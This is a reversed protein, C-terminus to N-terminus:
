ASFTEMQHRWLTTNWTNPIWRDGNGRMVGAIRFANGYWSAIINEYPWRGCSKPEYKSHPSTSYFVGIWANCRRWLWRWPTEFCRRISQKSLRKYLLLDFFVDFSRTVPRQSPFDGTVPSNGACLALLAPFTEMQHRWWTMVPNWSWM